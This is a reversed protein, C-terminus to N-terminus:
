KATGSKYPMVPIPCFIDFVQRNLPRSVDKSVSLNPLAAGLSGEYGGTAASVAGDARKACPCTSSRRKMANHINGNDLYYSLM